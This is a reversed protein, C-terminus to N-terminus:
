FFLAATLNKPFKGEKAPKRPRELTGAYEAGLDARDVYM